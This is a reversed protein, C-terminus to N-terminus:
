PLCHPRGQCARKPTPRSASQSPTLDPFDARTLHGMEDYTYTIQRNLQDITTGQKGISNYIIQTTSGDVLNFGNFAANKVITGIQDRLAVFDQNM